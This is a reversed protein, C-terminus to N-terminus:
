VSSRKGRSCARSRGELVLLIPNGNSSGAISRLRSESRRFGEEAGLGGVSCRLSRTSRVLGIWTLSTRVTQQSARSRSIREHTYFCGKTVLFALRRQDHCSTPRPQSSRGGLRVSIKSCLVSCCPSGPPLTATASVPNRSRGLLPWVNTKTFRRCHLM